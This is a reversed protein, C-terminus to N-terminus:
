GKGLLKTVFYLGAVVAVVIIVTSSKQLAAGTDEAASTVVAQISSGGVGAQVQKIFSEAIMATTQGTTDNGVMYTVIDATNTVGDKIALNYNTTLEDIFQDNIDYGGGLDSFDFLAAFGTEIIAGANDKGIDQVIANGIAQERTINLAM